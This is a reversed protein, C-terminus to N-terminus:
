TLLIHYLSNGHVILEENVLWFSAISWEAGGGQFRRTVDSMKFHSSLVSTLGSSIQELANFQNENIGVRSENAELLLRGVDVPLGQVGATLM